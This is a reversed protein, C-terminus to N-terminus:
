FVKEPTPFAICHMVYCLAGCLMIIQQFTLTKLTNIANDLLYRVDGHSRQAFYMESKKTIQTDILTVTFVHVTSGKM